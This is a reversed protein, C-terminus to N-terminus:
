RVPPCRQKQTDPGEVWCLKTTQRLKACCGSAQRMTAYAEDPAPLDRSSRQNSANRSCKNLGPDQLLPGTSLLTDNHKTEAETDNSPCHDYLLLASLYRCCGEHATCQMGMERTSPVMSVLPLGNTEELFYTLRKRGRGRRLKREGRVSRGGPAECAPGIGLSIM